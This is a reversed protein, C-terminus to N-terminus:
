DSFTGIVQLLEELGKKGHLYFSSESRVEEQRDRSNEDYVGVTVFGAKKATKLGHLADEFVLTEEPITGLLRAARLYVAPDQKGVGVDATTVIGSFYKLVGAKQLATEVLDRDTVSAIMMPIGRANLEKLLKEMGPKLVTEERYLVRIVDNMGQGIEAETKQLAYDRNLLVSAEELTMTFITKALGPKAQIGMGKLYLEPTRDWLPNTDTVTGDLDFIASRIM